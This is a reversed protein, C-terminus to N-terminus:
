LSEGACWRAARQLFASHGPAEISLRDHALASYISRGKGFSHSWALTQTSGDEASVAQFLPVADKSPEINHYLEDVLSFTNRNQTVPHGANLNIINLEAPEPHFSSGWIWKAGLLQQWEPWTDFCIASTHLGLLGGGGSLYDTLLVSHRESIEYAWAARDPIYKDHDLMRWRLAFITVLHPGGAIADLGADFDHYITSEFGSEDLVESLAQSADEFDHNIGGTLILNKLTM